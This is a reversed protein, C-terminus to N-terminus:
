VNKICGVARGHRQQSFTAPFRKPGNRPILGHPFETSPKLRNLFSVAAGTAVGVAAAVGFCPQGQELRVEAQGWSPPQQSVHVETIPQARMSRLALKDSNFYVYANMGVAFLVSGWLLFPSNFLSGIFVILASMGVLLGFTKAGNAYGHLGSM